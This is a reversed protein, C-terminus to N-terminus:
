LTKVAAKFQEARDQYDKFMDFSACAPSLLVVDGTKAVASAKAVIDSMKGEVKEYNTFHAKKLTVELTDAMQGILLVRRIDAKTLAKALPKFDAGKDSGGLILVKPENFSELAAIAASPTTAISDDVYRVGDKEGIIELRHPLGKFGTIAQKFAMANQSFRWAATVAAAINEHNHQGPLGFEEVLCIRHGEITLYGDQIHAGEPHFYRIKKGLGVKAVKASLKNTPHYIVVDGEGQWRAINSKAQLYDELSTHKDLHEPEVMLVVAVEPSQKVDWLQFSSLEFVVFDEPQVQDLVDLAPQGINGVLHVTLKSAKLIQSIITATTGKGKAGTVGIVPAPCRALFESTASTIQGSTKIKSPPLGATRWVQDFKLEESFVDPGLQSAVGNPPSIDTREDLVTIDYEGKRRLYRYTAQGELEFGAIAVKLREGAQDQRQILAM